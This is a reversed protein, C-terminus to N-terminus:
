DRKGEEQFVGLKPCPEDNPKQASQDMPQTGNPWACCGIGWKRTAELHRYCSFISFIVGRADWRGATELDLAEAVRELKAVKIAEQEDSQNTVPVM